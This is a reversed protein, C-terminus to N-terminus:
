TPFREEYLFSVTLSRVARVYEGVVPLRSSALRRATARRTDDALAAYPRGRRLRVAAGILVAAATLGLRTVQGAGRVRQVVWECTRGRLEAGAAPM